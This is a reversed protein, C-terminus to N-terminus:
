GQKPRPTAAWTKLLDDYDITKGQPKENALKRRHALSGDKEPKAYWYEATQEENM